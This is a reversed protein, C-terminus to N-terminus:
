FGLQLNDRCGSPQQVKWLRERFAIEDFNGKCRVGAVDVSHCFHESGHSPAEVYDCLREAENGHVVVVVADQMSQDFGRVMATEKTESLVPCDLESRQGANRERSYQGT